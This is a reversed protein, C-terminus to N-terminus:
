LSVRSLDFHTPHWIQLKAQGFSAMFTSFCVLIAPSFALFGLTSISRDLHLKQPMQSTVQGYPAILTVRFPLWSRFRSAFSVKGVKVRSIV